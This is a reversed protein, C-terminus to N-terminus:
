LMSKNKQVIVRLMCLVINFYDISVFTMSLKTKTLFYDISVFESM